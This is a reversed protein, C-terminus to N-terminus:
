KGVCFHSFIETVVDEGVERGDIESIRAVALELDVGALDASLGLELARLALELHEAAGSLAAYQRVNAIVADNRLDLEGDVFLRGILEGLEAIGEGSRACTSVIHPSIERLEEPNITPNKDNKNIIIIKEASKIKINDLMKCDDEDLECSGDLVALILEAGDLADRARDVGIREVTDATDRLGATDTLRLTAGGVSVTESLLDRTTGEIDTVIAAERGLLANYISSKGVNPKGCIVTRVGEMVAHGTRYTDRLARVRSLLEGTRTAMEEASMDALEEEPYDVVAYVQAILAILDNHLKGCASTLRGEMGSRALRLQSDNQAELLTGLAEARSLTLKGNVFARRTFEGAQAARAGAALVAELVRQTIYAGGHCHIEATDEGTFSHPACFRVALCDDIAEGECIVSGYVLRNPALSSFDKGSATHFVRGAVEFADSGSIRIVAVGGKGRPTSVAAVTDFFNMGKWDESVARGEQARFIELM